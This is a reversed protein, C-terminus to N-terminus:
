YPPRAQVSKKPHRAHPADRRARAGVSSSRKSCMLSKCQRSLDNVHHSRCKHPRVSVVKAHHAEWPVELCQSCCSRPLPVAQRQSLKASFSCHAVGFSPRLIALHRRHKAPYWQFCIVGDHQQVNWTVLPAHATLAFSLACQGACATSSPADTRM